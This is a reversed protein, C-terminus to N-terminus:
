RSAAENDLEAFSFCDIGFQKCASAPRVASGEAAALEKFRLTFKKEEFPPRNLRASKIHRRV